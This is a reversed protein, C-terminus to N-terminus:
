PLEFRGTSAIAGDKIQWIEITSAVDGNSDFDQSGGAGEYNIDKGQEILDLARKMGGIGPGIKEGPPNAVARLADRIKTSDDITGAKAAALAILIVADYTEAMYPHEAIGGFQTLYDAKFADGAKNAATGPATGYMGDFAEWGAADFLEPAKTGDVFLFNDIYGGELAERLYVQAQGPYGIAILVDPNGETAKALESAYSPQEDEHAVTATVTGGNAEFTTKFQGSLGEGYPNNLYLTAATSNGLEQALRALVVGQAADSVVTRFLFDQDELVTIAPSTSAGSIQLINNPVTVASAVAMSVGSSLAGVIAAVGDTDVLKRAAEVGVEPNVETDQTILTIDTGGARKIHTAALKAANGHSTGFFSLSGSYANIQGIKLTKEVDVEGGGCSMVGLMVVSLASFGLGLIVTRKSSTYLKKILNM